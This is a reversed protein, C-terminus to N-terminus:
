HNSRAPLQSMLQHHRIGVFFSSFTKSRAVLLGPWLWFFDLFMIVSCYTLTLANDQLRLFSPLPSSHPTFDIQFLKFPPAPSEVPSPPTLHPGHPHLSVFFRKSRYAFFGTFWLMRRLGRPWPFTAALQDCQQYYHYNRARDADDEHISEM